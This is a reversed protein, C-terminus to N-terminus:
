CYEVARPIAALLWVKNAICEMSIKESEAQLIGRM